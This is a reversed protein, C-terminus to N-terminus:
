PSAGVMHDVLLRDREHPRGDGLRRRAETLEGADALAEGAADAAFADDGALATYLRDIGGRIHALAAAANRRVWWEPDTLCSSVLDLSATDGIEGLATVAKARIRWDASRVQNRLAPATKLSGLSGLAEITAIRV